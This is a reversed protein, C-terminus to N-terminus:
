HQISGYFIYLVIYTIVIIKAHRKNPWLKLSIDTESKRFLICTQNMWIM